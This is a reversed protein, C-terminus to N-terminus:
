CGCFTTRDTFEMEVMVAAMSILVKDDMSCGAPFTLKHYEDLSPGQTGMCGGYYETAMDLRGVVTKQEDLEGSIQSIWFKKSPEQSMQLLQFRQEGKIEYLVQHDADFVKYLRDYSTKRNKSHGTVIPDSMVRGIYGITDGNKDKIPIIQKNAGGLLSAGTNKFSCIENGQGDKATFSVEFKGLCLCIMFAHKLVELKFILNKNEDLIKIEYTDKKLNYCLSFGFLMQALCIPPSAKDRRMLFKELAPVSSPNSAYTETYSPPLAYNLKSQNM